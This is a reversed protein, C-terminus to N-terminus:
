ECPPGISEKSGGGRIITSFTGRLSIKRNYDHHPGARDNLLRSVASKVSHRFEILTGEGSISSHLPFM